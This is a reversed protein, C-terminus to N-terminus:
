QCQAGSFRNLAEVEEALAQERAAEEAYEEAAVYAAGKKAALTALEEFRKEIQAQPLDWLSDIDAAELEKLAGSVAALAVIADLAQGGSKGNEIRRLRLIVKELHKRIKKAAKTTKM